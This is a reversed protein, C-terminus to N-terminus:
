EGIEIEDVSVGFKEAIEALTVKKKPTIERMKRWSTLGPSTKVGELTTANVWAYYLGNIEKCFVRTVWEQDDYDRVEVLRETPQAHFLSIFPFNTLYKGEKTFRMFEENPYGEFLVSVPYDYHSPSIEVVRGKMIVEDGVKFEKM